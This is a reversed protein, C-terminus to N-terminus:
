SAISALISRSYRLILPKMEREDCRETLRALRDKWRNSVGVRSNGGVGTPLNAEHDAAFVTRSVDRLREPAPAGLLLLFKTSIVVPGDM